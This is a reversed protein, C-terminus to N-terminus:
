AQALECASRNTIKPMLSLEEWAHLARLLPRKKHMHTEMRCLIDDLARVADVVYPGKNLMVCEARVGMAADTIEARSPMGSQALNELVQTAWIVPMHAAECVWLIEEQVESLREFGVEVALDGRAIMVGACRARMAALMLEPLANFARQTEIKLVVGPRREGLPVLRDLLDHVDQAHQVFSMGIFDANAAVFKLDEQDKATLTALQLRSDPLNIGKEAKLRGGGTPTHTIDIWAEDRSARQIMGGFKGDDLWIHEGVRVDALIDPPLCPIYAPHLLSGDAAYEAAQGPVADRTLVLIDGLQLPIAREVPPLDAVHLDVVSKPEPMASRYQLPTGSVVSAKEVSSAWCGEAAREVILLQCGNEFALVDGALLLDFGTGALPMVADAKEMLSSTGAPHLWIRAPVIEHESHKHSPKWKLRSPKSEVTGTRLKPGALDMLIRCRRGLEGEARRLHAVMNAWAHADDHACNIRMCDMGSALLSRVLDYDQAAETSMTVM